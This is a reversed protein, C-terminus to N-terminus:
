SLNLPNGESGFCDPDVDLRLAMAMNCAKAFMNMGVMPQGSLLAFNTGVILAQVTKLRPYESYSLAKQARDYFYFCVQAPQRPETMTAAIACYLLRLEPAETWFNEVISVPDVSCFSHRYKFPHSQIFQSLIAM